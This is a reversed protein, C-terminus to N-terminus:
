SVHAVEQGTAKAIAARASYCSVRESGTALGENMCWPNLGAANIYKDGAEIVQRVTVLSALTAMKRLEELLEPAAAILRANAEQEDVPLGSAAAAVLWPHGNNEGADPASVTIHQSGIDIDGATSNQERDVTWPGPTHKTQEM